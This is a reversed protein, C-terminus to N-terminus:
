PHYVVTPVVCLHNKRSATNGFTEEMDLDEPKMGDPLKWDFHYLLKAIALDIVAYGFSSGPCIRRGSGFPIYQHNTGKFNYDTSPDLFRQPQFKEVENWYKPDRGLAWANVIIRSNSPIKYGNIEWTEFNERPVLLPLPPHLRLIEKIVADTYKLKHLETEEVYGKNGFVKRVEAQAEKMTEPNRLLEAMAWELITATTETAGFFMDQIISKITDDCIHIDLDNEKQVRLLVDVLDEQHAEDDGDESRKDNRERHEAIVEQLIGDGLEHLKELKRKLGTIVPLFKLSPFLDEVGLGTALEMTKQMFYVVDDVNKSKGIAARAVVSNALPFFQKHLNIVSGEHETIYKMLSGIQEERINRFSQVRKVSLLELTCIKRLQRWRHGYPAFGVDIGDYGVIKAALYIPRNAFIQDHTKMIEKAMESSSIIINSTQGLQLHILPGYKNALDRMIHHPLSPGVM